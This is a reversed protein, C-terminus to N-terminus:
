ENDVTGDDIMQIWAKFPDNLKGGDGDGVKLEGGASVGIRRDSPITKTNIEPNIVTISV